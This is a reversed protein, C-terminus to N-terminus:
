LVRTASVYCNSYYKESLSTIVVGGGYTSSHIFKGDGIYMGVHSIKKGGSTAFFVLDCKQLEDKSVSVGDSAMGSSNRTLSINFNKMVYSVFGSCDFGKKPNMAGYVYKTGLFQKAYNIIEDPEAEGTYSLTNETTNEVQAAKKGSPAKESLNVYTPMDVSNILIYGNLGEYEALYWDRYTATVVVADGTGLLAIASEEDAPTEYMWVVQETIIGDVQTVKVFEKAIYVNEDNKLNVRFYDGEEGTIDVPEGKNVMYLVNSDSKSGADRVNVKNGTVTGRTEAWATTAFLLIACLSIVISLTGKFLKM